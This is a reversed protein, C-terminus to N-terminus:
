VCRAVAQLLREPELQGKVVYENAGAELGREVDARKDLGTVLVVPLEGLRPHARVRHLLEIGDLGPMEVDSVLLDFEGHELARWGALGDPAVEVEYGAAILINQELTRHTVSDDVVLVRTKGARRRGGTVAPAKQAGGGALLQAVDLVVAVSGDPLAAGGVVGRVRALNWPLPRVVLEEEALVDEVVLGVRVRGQRLLVLPLWTAETARAREPWVLRVPEGDDLRVTPVGDLVHVADARARAAREVLAIPLGCVAGALRVLLVRTALVDVPLRLRFTAGGLPGTAQPEISGGLESLARRVVDLGVGRGSVANATPTTSLGSEFALEIVDAPKLRALKAADLRGAAVAAEGLRALDFGAGDDSVELRVQGGDMGAKVLVRGMAPKGRAARVEAPELGHSVANRVLHVVPERVVDLVRKDVAVDGLELHVDVQRGLAHAAELAARRWVHALSQLPLLRLGRVAAMQNATLRTLATTEQRHRRLFAGLSGALAALDKRHGDPLQAVLASLEEHYGDLHHTHLAFRRELLLLDGAFGMLGDLRAADVRVSAQESALAEPASTEATQQVSRRLQAHAELGQRLEVHLQAVLGRLSTMVGAADDLQGRALPALADELRHATHGFTELGVSVGGGKLTHALRMAERAHELLAPGRARGLPELELSLKEMLEGAEATFATIIQELLAEDM